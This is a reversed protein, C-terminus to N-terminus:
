WLAAALDQDRGLKTGLAKIDKMAVGLANASPIAYRAMGDRTAKTSHSKLWKLASQVDDDLSPKTTARAATPNM